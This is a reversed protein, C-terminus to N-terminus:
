GRASKAISGIHPAENTDAACQARAKQRQPRVSGRGVLRDHVLEQGAYIRVFRTRECPGIRRRVVVLASSVLGPATIIAAVLSVTLPVIEKKM